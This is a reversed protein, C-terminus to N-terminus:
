RDDDRATKGIRCVDFAQRQMLDTRYAIAGAGVVAITV